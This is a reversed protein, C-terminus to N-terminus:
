KETKRGKETGIKIYRGMQGDRKEKQRGTKREIEKETKSSM